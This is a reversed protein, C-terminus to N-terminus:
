AQRRSRGRWAAFLGLGALMMALSSPEPVPALPALVRSDFAQQFQTNNLGYNFLLKFPTSSQYGPSELQLTLLYAGSVSAPLGAPNEIAWDLHAHFSGNGSADDIIAPNPGSVGTGSFRTGAEYQPYQAALAPDCLFEDGTQCFLYATVIDTPVAGDLRVLAGAPAASWATAGPSWYQLNGVGRAYLLSGPTLSGAFGQFGPDNTKSAGGAFDGFNAPYLNQGTLFDVGFGGAPPAGGHSFFGANLRGGSNGVLVDYTQAHTTASAAIAAGLLAAHFATKFNM